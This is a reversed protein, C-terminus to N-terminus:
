QPYYENVNDINILEMPAKVEQPLQQGMLARVALVLGNYGLEYPFAAITADLDGDRVAQVAEPVSDTGVVIVGAETSSGGLAQIVGLAMTDNAAYIGKVDPFKQMINTAADLAKVRDWDGPQSSV